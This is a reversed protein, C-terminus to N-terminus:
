RPGLVKRAMKVVTDNTFPIAVAGTVGAQKAGALAINQDEEHFLLIAPTAMKFESRIHKIFVTGDFPTMDYDAFIVDPAFTRVLQLMDTGGGAVVQEAGATRLATTLLEKTLQKDTALLSRIGNLPRNSNWDM